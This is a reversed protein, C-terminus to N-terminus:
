ENDALRLLRREYAAVILLHGTPTWGLGIPTSPVEVVTQVHGQHDIQVVRGAFIDSCWLKGEHWRPCKPFNLQDTLITTKM